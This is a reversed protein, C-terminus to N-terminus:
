RPLKSGSEWVCVSMAPKKDSRAKCRVPCFPLKLLLALHGAGQEARQVQQQILNSIMVHWCMWMKTICCVLWFYYFGAPCSLSLPSLSLSLFCSSICINFFSHLLFLPLCLSVIRSLALRLSLSLSPVDARVNPDPQVPTDTPEKLVYFSHLSSRARCWWGGGGCYRGGCM